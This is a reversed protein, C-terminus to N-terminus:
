AAGPHSLRDIITFFRKAWPSADGRLKTVDVTELLKFSHAGKGDIGKRFEKWQEIFEDYAGKRSGAAITRPLRGQLGAKEMLRTFARRCDTALSPNHDGGGEVILVLGRPRIAVM